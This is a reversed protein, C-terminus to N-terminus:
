FQSLYTIWISWSDVNQVSDFDCQCVMRPLLFNKRLFSLTLFNSFCILTEKRERGSCERRMNIMCCNQLICKGWGWTRLYGGGDAGAIGQSVACNSCTSIQLEAQTLLASSVVAGCFQQQACFEQGTSTQERCACAAAKLSGIVVWVSCSGARLELHFHIM